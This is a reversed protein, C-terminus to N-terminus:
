WAGASSQSSFLMLVTHFGVHMRGTYPQRIICSVRCQPGHDVLMCTVSPAPNFNYTSIVKISGCRTAIRSFAKERTDM